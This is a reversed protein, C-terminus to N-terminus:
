HLVPGTEEPLSKSAEAHLAILENDFNHRVECNRDFVMTAEDGPKCAPWTPLGPHNPNGSRAFNIFAFFIQDQLRDSSDTNNVPVKDANHFVYPIESCHWAPKGGDYPFEYAFLFSFVSSELHASKAKIFEKTPARFVSDLVLLDTLKKEPYTRKFLDILQDSAKGYKKEIMPRIDKEELEYKKSVAPGFALEGFVTGILVPITKAHETFGVSCPNGLYFDNEIPSCGVYAGEKELAPSVKNYAEALRYYPVTELAKVSDFGLEKLLANVIQTGDDKAASDAISGDACGSEVIAKHFLGDASPTQMLNWVKMGGGSQGFITVNEPDGGFNVINKHIWELASVLDANGANASNKYEEGFASLNLYGLINLRHNVTVVVVDGFKSMNEGDYAVHEISSGTTYGGGHFWVMVPKKADPRISQTWINLSLCDESVPWYRHPIMIEGWPIEGKLLPCVFGYSLADRVGEWPEIEEPMKFRKAKAYKIGHFTYTGDLLFGRLKGKATQVIPETKSCVFQRAMDSKEERNNM